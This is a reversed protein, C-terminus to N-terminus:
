LLTGCRLRKRDIINLDAGFFRSFDQSICRIRAVAFQLIMLLVWPKTCLILSFPGAAGRGEWVAVM